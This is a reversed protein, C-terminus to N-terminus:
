KYREFWMQFPYHYSIIIDIIDYNSDLHQRRDRIQSTYSYSIMSIYSQQTSLLSTPGVRFRLSKNCNRNWNRSLFLKSEPEPDLCYKACNGDIMFKVFDQRELTPLLMIEWLLQGRM